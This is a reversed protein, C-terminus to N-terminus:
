QQAARRSRSWTATLSITPLEQLWANNAFRGDLVNPDPRFIVELGTSAAPAPSPAEAPATPAAGGELFSTGAIFGDHLVNRWFSDASAFPQGDRRRFSAGAASGALSFAGTWHAKVLDMSSQGTAGTFAGLVEIATHGDYLPAILPQVISVTGDFARVDGWSELYHAQPVHWHSLEATEDHYLGLHIRTGVRDLAEAFRLDAPATFVPNVGLM